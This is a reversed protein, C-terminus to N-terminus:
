GPVLSEIFVHPHMVLRQPAWHSNWLRHAWAFTFPNM